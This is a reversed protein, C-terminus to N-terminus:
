VEMDLGSIPETSEADDDKLVFAYQDPKHLGLFSYTHELMRELAIHEAACVEPELVFAYQDEQSSPDVNPPIRRRKHSIPPRRCAVTEEHYTRNTRTQAPRESTEFSALSSSCSSGDAQVGVAWLETTQRMSDLAQRTRRTRAVAAAHPESAVPIASSVKEVTARKKSKRQNEKRQKELAKQKRGQQALRSYESKIARQLLEHPPHLAPLKEDGYLTALQQLAKKVSFERALDTAVANRLDSGIKMHSPTRMDDEEIDAVMVM